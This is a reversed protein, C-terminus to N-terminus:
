FFLLFSESVLIEGELFVVFPVLYRGEGVLSMSSVTLPNPDLIRKILRKSSSSFWAPFSFDAKQIQFFLYNLM